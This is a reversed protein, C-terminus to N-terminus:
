GFLPLYRTGIEPFPGLIEIDQQGRAAVARCPLDLTPNKSDNSMLDSERVGYILRGLYGWYMAGFCMCCPEASTYLTFARMQEKTYIQSARRMLQTEAHGTCDTLGDTQINGQELLISGDQDALLAGFPETGNDKAQKALEVTKWLLAQEFDKLEDLKWDRNEITIQITRTTM